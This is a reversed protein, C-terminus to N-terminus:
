RRPPTARSDAQFEMHATEGSLSTVKVTIGLTGDKFTGSCRETAGVKAELDGACTIPPFSAIGKARAIEDFKAQAQKEVEAKSVSSGGISVSGGCGLLVLVM